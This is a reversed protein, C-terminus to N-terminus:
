KTRFTKPVKMKIEEGHVAGVNPIESPPPKGFKAYAQKVADEYNELKEGLMLKLMGLDRLVKELTEPELEEKRPRIIVGTEPDRPHFYFLELQRDTLKGLGSGM